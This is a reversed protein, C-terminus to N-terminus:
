PRNGFALEGVHDGDSTIRQSVDVHQAVGADDDLVSAADFLGAPGPPDAVARRSWGSADIFCAASAVTIAPAIPTPINACAAAVLASGSSLRPRSCRSMM